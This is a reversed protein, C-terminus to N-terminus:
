TSHLTTIDGRGASQDLTIPEVKFQHCKGRESIPLVTFSPVYRCCRSQHFKKEYKKKKCNKSGLTFIDEVVHGFQMVIYDASFVCCVIVVTCRSVSLCVKFAPSPLGVLSLQWRTVIKYLESGVGHDCHSRSVKFDYNLFSFEIMM